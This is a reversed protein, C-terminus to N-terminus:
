KKREKKQSLEILFPSFPCKLSFGDETHDSGVCFLVLFLSVEITQFMKFTLKQISGDATQLSKAAVAVEVTSSAMWM